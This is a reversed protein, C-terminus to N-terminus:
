DIACPLLSNLNFIFNPQEDATRPLSEQFVWTPGIWFPREFSFLAASFSIMSIATHSSSPRGNSTKCTSSHPQSGLFTVPGVPQFLLGGGLAELCLHLRNVIQGQGHSVHAPSRIHLVTLYSITDRCKHDNIVAAISFSYM